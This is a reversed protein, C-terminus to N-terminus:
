TALQAWNTLSPSTSIIMLPDITGLNPVIGMCAVPAGRFLSGFGEERVIERMMSVISGEYKTTVCMRTRISFNLTAVWFVFCGCCGVLGCHLLLPLSCRLLDLPYTVITSTLGSLGTVCEM